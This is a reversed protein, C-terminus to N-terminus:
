GLYADEIKVNINIEPKFDDNKKEADKRWQSTRRNRLWLEQAKVDAPCQREVVHVEGDKAIFKETYTYGIAKRFLANEVIMDADERTVLSTEKLEPSKKCWGYFTCKSIHIVKKCLEEITTGTRLYGAITALGNESTWRDFLATVRTKPKTTTAKKKEPM